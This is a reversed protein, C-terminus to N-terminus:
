DSNCKLIERVYGYEVKNLDPMITRAKMLKYRVWPDEGILRALLITAVVVDECDEPGKLGSVSVQLFQGNHKTGACGAFQMKDADATEGSSLHGHIAARVAKEVAFMEAAESPAGVSFLILNRTDVERILVRIGNRKHQVCPLYSVMEVVQSFLATAIGVMEERKAQLDIM